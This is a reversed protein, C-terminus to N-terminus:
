SGQPPTAEAARRKPIIQLADSLLSRDISFVVLAFLLALLVIAVPFLIPGFAWASMTYRGVLGIVVGGVLAARIRPWLRVEPFMRRAVYILLVNGAVMPVCAGVAFGMLGWRPTTFPVIAFTALTWGVSLQAMIKPKGIADFAPAVLPALFGISIGSLYVYFVPLGPLWKDTYITSVLNPGLAWGLGVFFLTGLACVQFSRELARAFMVKDGQLRSFLPFSVRSMIQVLKLPFFATSQAWNVFGLGAQGLAHGGYVPAIASSSFGILNKVQYAIGFRVIPAIARRDLM